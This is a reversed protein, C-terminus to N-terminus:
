KARQQQQSRAVQQEPSFIGAVVQRSFRKYVGHELFVFQYVLAIVKGGIIIKLEGTVTSL